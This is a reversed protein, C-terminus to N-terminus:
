GATRNPQATAADIGAAGVLPNHTFLQHLYDGMAGRGRVHREVEALSLRLQAGVHYGPLYVHPVGSDLLWQSAWAPGAGPQLQPERAARPQPLRQDVGGRHAAALRAGAAARQRHQDRLGAGARVSARRGPAHERATAILHDVAESRLPPRTGAPLGRQRALSNAARAPRCTALLDCVKLIEPM